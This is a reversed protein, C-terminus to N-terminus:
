NLLCSDPRTVVAQSPFLPCCNHANRIQGKKSQEESRSVSRFCRPQNPADVRGTPQLIGQPDIGTSRSLNAHLNGPTSPPQRQQISSSQQWSASPASKLPQRLLGSISLAAERLSLGFDLPTTRARQITVGGSSGYRMCRALTIPQAYCRGNHGQPPWGEFRGAVSDWGSNSQPM